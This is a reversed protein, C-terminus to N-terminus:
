NRILGKLWCIDEKKLVGVLFLVCVFIVAFLVGRLVPQYVHAAIFISCGTGALAFFATKWSLAPGTIKVLRRFSLVFNLLHTVLFSVFYGTMGFRPLLVFLFVVDMASTLINYRVCATQQGLGKIMADTIADCYLMPILFGYLQLMMGADQNQYLRNCLTQGLLIELGAFFCGYLMTIKLSRRALYQIRKKSGAANCRALEPILLEALGFIIAAPFMLVPFVMGSVMGFDALPNDTGPYLALRKPVMLNETTSIGAKLDDALALPVATRVLGSRVSIRPAVPPKEAIRLVLLCLLTFCVAMGSGFIISKCARVPDSGAWFLLMLMTTAMSFIQEAVEVLALTGIRNAATFYGVMVGTLCYIPVFCAYLRIAEATLVDGVWFEAIWPAFRYLAFAITGSCLISYIFCGSLVWRVNGPQKRGLEAATLYMTATRIGAMGATMALAGVSLVLQLLGVGAAGISGSIYVQFSTSVLRLLLNVGTLLLASYFIPLKKSM